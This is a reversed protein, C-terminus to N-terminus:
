VHEVERGEIRALVAAINARVHLRVMPCDQYPQELELLAAQLLQYMAPAEAILRANALLEIETTDGMEAVCRTVGQADPAMVAFGTRHLGWPGPTFKQTNPSKASM